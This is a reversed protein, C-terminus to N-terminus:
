VSITTMRQPRRTQRRQRPEKIDINHLTAVNTIYEYMHDWTDENRLSKLTDVTSTVLDASMAFDIDESQLQDSLSKTFGMIQWFIVLCSIFKFCHIQHLLGTAEISKLKDNGDAISELTALISDYTSAIVDLSM